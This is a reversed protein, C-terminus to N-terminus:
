SAAIAVPVRVLDRDSGVRCNHLNYRTMFLWGQAGVTEFNRTTSAPDLLAPYGVSFVDNCTVGQFIPVARVLVPESWAILDRSLSAYIGTGTGPRSATMTAIFTGSPQHRVLSVSNTLRGPAVPACVHARAADGGELTEHYPDVFRVSFREGDWGRWSRPDELHDTRILCLGQRQDRYSAAYVLAYYFGDLAVINSPNFYGARSGIEGPYRYPLAMVLHDPRPPSAFTTGGDRSVAFTVANFWCRQYDHSPCLTPRLNAHFENHVLAFVTRGDLTYPSLIWARDDYAGPDDDHRGAFLVRCDHRLHDLDPGAMARAEMHSAILRVRGDATRFARAPSDAFDDPACKDSQWRFVVQPEGTIAITQGEARATALLLLLLIPALRM